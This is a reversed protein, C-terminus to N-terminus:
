LILDSETDFQYAEIELEDFERATIEKADFQGATMANNRHLEFLSNVVDKYYNWEGTFPSRMTLVPEKWVRNRGSGLWDWGFVDWEFATIGSNDFMEATYYNWNDWNDAPEAFIRFLQSLIDLTNQIPEVNGFIPNKVQVSTITPIMDIVKQIQADVYTYLATNNDFVFKRLTAIQEYVDKELDSIKKDIKLDQEALQETIKANQEQLQKEVDDLLLQIKANQDQLQQNVQNQLEAIKADVRAESATLLKNVDGIIVDYTMNVVTIVENLKSKVRCLTEYYSLENEYVLPLIPECRLKFSTIEPIINAM